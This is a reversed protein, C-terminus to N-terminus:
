ELKKGKINGKPIKSLLGSDVKRYQNQMQDLVKYVFNDIQDDYGEYLVPLNHAAVFCIRELIHNKM